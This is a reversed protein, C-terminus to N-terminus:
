AYFWTSIYQISLQHLCFTLYFAFTKLYFRKGTYKM